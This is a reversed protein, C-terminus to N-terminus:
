VDGMAANIVEEDDGTGYGSHVTHGNAVLLPIVDASSPYGGEVVEDLASNVGLAKVIEQEVEDAVYGDPIGNALSDWNVINVKVPIDKVPDLGRLAREQMMCDLVVRLYQSNGQSEQFTEEIQGTVMVYEIKGTVDDKKPVRHKTVVRRLKLKKSRVWAKWAAAKVESLEELKDKVIEERIEGAVDWCKNREERLLRVDCAIQSMSVGYKSAIRSYTWGRRLLIPLLTLDYQRQMKGRVPMIDGSGKM